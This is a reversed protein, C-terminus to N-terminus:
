MNYVFRAMNHYERMQIKLKFQSSNLLHSEYILFKFYSSNLLHLSTYKSNHQDATYINYVFPAMDHYDGM